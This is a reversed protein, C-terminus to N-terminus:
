VAPPTGIPHVEVPQNILTGGQGPTASIRAAIELARQESAVDLLWFGALVEKTESFPGDTIIPDGDQSARVTKAYEAGALGQADLLEGSASLDANIGHMFGVMARLDEQSWDELDKWGESNGHILLMYKM